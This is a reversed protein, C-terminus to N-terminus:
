LDCGFTIQFGNLDKFVIEKKGYETEPNIEIVDTKAKIPEILEDISEVIFYLGADKTISADGRGEPFLMFGAGEWDLLAWDLGCDPEAHTGLCKFGLKLYWDLTKEIDSVRLFSLCTAMTLFNIILQIEASLYVQLKTSLEVKHSIFGRFM